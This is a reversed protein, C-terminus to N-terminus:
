TTTCCSSSNHATDNVEIIRFTGPISKVNLSDIDIFPVLRRLIGASYLDINITSDSSNITSLIWEARQNVWGQKSYVDQKTLSSDRSFIFIHSGVGIDQRQKTKINEITLRRSAIKLKHWKKLQEKENKTLKNRRGLQINDQMVLNDFHLEAGSLGNTQLHLTETVELLRIPDEFDKYELRFYIKVSSDSKDTLRVKSFRRLYHNSKKLNNIDGESPWIGKENRYNTIIHDLEKIERKDMLYFSDIEVPRCSTFLALVFILFRMRTLKVVGIHCVVIWYCCM